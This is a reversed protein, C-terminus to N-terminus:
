RFLLNIEPFKKRDGDNKVGGENRLIYSITNADLAYTM